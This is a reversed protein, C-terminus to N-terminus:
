KPLSGSKAVTVQMGFNNGTLKGRDLAMAATIGWGKKIRFTVEGM